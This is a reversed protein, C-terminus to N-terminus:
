STSTRLSSRTGKWHADVTSEICSTDSPHCLKHTYKQGSFLLTIHLLWGFFFFPNNYLIHSSSGEISLLNQITRSINTNSGFFRCTKIPNTPYFFNTPLDKSITIIEITIYIIIISIASKFFHRLNGLFLMSSNLKRLVAASELSGYRHLRLVWCDSGM